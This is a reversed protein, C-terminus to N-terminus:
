GCSALVPVDNFRVYFNPDQNLEIIVRTKGRVKPQPVIALPALGAPITITGAVRGGSASQTSNQVPARDGTSVGQLVVRYNDLSGTYNFSFSLTTQRDDCIVPQNKGDVTARYNSDLNISSRDVTVGAPLDTDIDFVFRLTGSCGALTLALVSAVLLSLGIRKM